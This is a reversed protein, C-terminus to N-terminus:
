RYTLVLNFLYGITWPTEINQMNTRLCMPCSILAAAAVQSGPGGKSIQSDSEGLYKGLMLSGLSYAAVFLPASPYKRYLLLVFSHEIAVRSNGDGNTM